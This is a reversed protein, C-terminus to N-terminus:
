VDNFDYNRSDMNIPTPQTFVSDDNIMDTKYYKKNAMDFIEGTLYNVIYSRNKSNSENSAGKEVGLKKLDAEDLLYYYEEFPLTDSTSYNKLLNVNPFGNNKISTNPDAIRTGVFGEPRYTDETASKNNSIAPKAIIGLKNATKVLAYRQMIAEQVISLEAEIKKNSVNHLESLGYNLTISLIITFVVITIILSILTIGNKNMMQM